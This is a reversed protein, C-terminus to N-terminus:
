FGSRPVTTCYNTLQLLAVCCYLTLVDGAFFSKFIRSFGCIIFKEAIMMWLLLIAHGHQQHRRCINSRTRWFDAYVSLQILSLHKSVVLQYTNQYNGSESFFRPKLRFFSSSSEATSSSSTCHHVFVSSRFPSPAFHVSAAIHLLFIVM